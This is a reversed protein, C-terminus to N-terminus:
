KCQDEKAPLWFGGECYLWGQSSRSCTGSPSCINGMNLPVWKKNQCILVGSANTSGNVCCDGGVKADVSSDANCPSQNITVNGLQPTTLSILDPNITRLILVSAILLGLGLLAQQITDKADEVKSVNGAALIYQIGGIMMRALALFAILSLGFLFLYRIYQPFEQGAALRNEPINPLGTELRIASASNYFIFFSIFFLASAIIM